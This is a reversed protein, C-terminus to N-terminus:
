RSVKFNDGKILDYYIEQLWQKNFIGMAHSAMLGSSQDIELDHEIKLIIDSPNKYEILLEGLESEFNVFSPCFVPRNIQIADAITGSGRGNQYGHTESLPTILYNCINGVYLLESETWYREPHFYVGQAVLKKYQDHSKVSSIVSPLQGLYIFGVNKFECFYDVIQALLNLDRRKEDWGGLVGILVECKEINPPLKVERVSPKVDNLRGPFVLVRGSHCKFTKRFVQLQVSSEFVKLNSKWLFYRSIAYSAIALFYNKISRGRQNTETVVRYYFRWRSINRICLILNKFKRIQWFLKMDEFDMKYEPMTTIIINSESISIQNQIKLEKLKDLSQVKMELGYEHLVNQLNNVNNSYTFVLIEVDNSIVSLWPPATHNHTGM